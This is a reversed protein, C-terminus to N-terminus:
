RIRIRVTKAPAFGQLVTSWAFVALDYDGTPLGEATLSYGARGFRRGYVAGVDPRTGRLAANGLFLPDAGNLPYAWVHVADVGTDLDDDLDAAWGAVVFPQGAALRRSPMDIVVQPGVRGSGKPNLIIRVHREGDAGAFVFDYVGVFGAGPQWTFLGNPALGAGIPLPARGTASRVAGTTAGTQLEIRDLEEAEIVVLGSLNARYARMPAALDFGRRGSLVVQPQASSEAVTEVVPEAAPEAVLASAAATYAAGNAVTFYRSGVGSTGGGNDTVSWAITHVGNALTRSDFTFVGLARSIGAYAAAPFAATLDPRSTWGGPSGVPVGDIVVRVTGGGPPDARRTGPSLVWGYNNVVGSVAQGQTPTDIAGFPLTASANACTITKTGLLTSHGDGDDAYAYLTFTGNGSDPLFNTLMLYGWGARDKGAVAPYLAAIDPRAGQVLSADGIYVLTGAPEGGVPARLIRVRTVGGADLAWGTVALSATVGAVNNLPTDFSGFPSGATPTSAVTAPVLDSVEISPQSRLGQATYAIVRFYYRTGAAAAGFTWTTQAGVNIEQDARGPSTGLLVIYGTVQSEVNPDWAISISAASAPVAVLVLIAAALLRLM